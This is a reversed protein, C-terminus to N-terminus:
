SWVCAYTHKLTLSLFSLSFFFFFFLPLSLFPCFSPLRKPLSFLLRVGVYVLPITFAHTYGYTDVHPCVRVDSNTLVGQKQKRTKGCAVFLKFLASPCSKEFNKSLNIILCSYNSHWRSPIWLSIGLAICVKWTVRSSQHQTAFSEEWIIGLDQLLAPRDALASLSLLLSLCGM